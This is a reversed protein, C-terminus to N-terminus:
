ANAGPVYGPMARKLARFEPWRDFRRFTKAANESCYLSRRYALDTGLARLQCCFEGQRPQLEAFEAVLAAIVRVASRKPTSFYENIMWGFIWTNFRRLLRGTNPWVWDVLQEDWRVHGIEDALHARQAEVFHPELREAHKLFTRGFYIAREEQLHMLWLLFCFRAPRKSIFDLIRAAARPVQIFHFDGKEYIAPACIQNLRRFMASHKEEEFMFQRLGAELKKSPSAGLFYGLINRAFTKEFFLTQENFYLANIQNYRLHQAETLVKYAPAYYFPTLEEPMFSRSFDIAPGQEYRLNGIQQIATSGAQSSATNRRESSRGIPFRRYLLNSVQAVKGAMSAGFHSASDVEKSVSQEETPTVQRLPCSISSPPIRAGEGRDDNRGLPLAGRGTTTRQVTKGVSIRKAFSSLEFGRRVTMSFLFRSNFNVIRDAGNRGRVSAWKQAGCREASSGRGVKSKPSQVKSKPSQVKSKPSQVKSK